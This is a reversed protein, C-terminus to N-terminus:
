KSAGAESLTLPRLQAEPWRIGSFSTYCVTGNEIQITCVGFYSPYSCLEEKVVLVQGVRYKPNPPPLRLRDESFWVGPQGVMEYLPGVTAAGMFRLGDVLRDSIVRVETNNERIEVLVRDDIRFKM